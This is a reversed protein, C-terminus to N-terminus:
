EQAAGSYRREGDAQRADMHRPRFINKFEYEPNLPKLIPLSAAVAGIPKFTDAM